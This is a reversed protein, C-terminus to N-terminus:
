RAPTAGDERLAYDAVYIAPTTRTTGETTEYEYLGDVIGWVQLQDGELIREDGYYWAAIDGQWEDGTTSVYMRLYDYEEDYLVQYVSAYEYYIAENRYQDITRFLEEYPVAEAQTKVDAVSDYRPTGTALPTDTATPTATAADTDVPEDSTSCGAVGLAALAALYARRRM